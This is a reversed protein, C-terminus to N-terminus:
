GAINELDGTITNKDLRDVRGDSREASAECGQGPLVYSIRSRKPIRDVPEIREGRFMEGRLIKVENKHRKIRPVKTDLEGAFSSVLGDDERGIELM